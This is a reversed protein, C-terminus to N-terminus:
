ESLCVAWVGEDERLSAGETLMGPGEVHVTCHLLALFPVNGFWPILSLGLFVLCMVSFLIAKGRILWASPWQM